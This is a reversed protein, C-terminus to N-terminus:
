FIRFILALFIDESTMRFCQAFISLTMESCEPGAIVEDLDAFFEVVVIRIKPDHNMGTASTETISDSGIERFKSCRKTLFPKNLKRISVKSIERLSRLFM